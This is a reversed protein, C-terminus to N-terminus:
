EFFGHRVVFSVGLAFAATPSRDKNGRPYPIFEIREVLIQLALEDACELEDTFIQPMGRKMNVDHLNLVSREETRM